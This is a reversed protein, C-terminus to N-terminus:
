VKVGFEAEEVAEGANRLEEVAHSLQPLLGAGDGVVAGEVAGDVEVPLRALAPDLGDDADLRIDGLAVPARAVGLVLRM